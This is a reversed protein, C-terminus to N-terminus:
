SRRPVNRLAVPWRQWAFDDPNPAPHLHLYQEQISGAEPSTGSLLIGFSGQRDWYDFELDGPPKSLRFRLALQDWNSPFNGQELISTVVRTNMQVLRHNFVQVAPVNGGSLLSDSSNPTWPAAAEFDM